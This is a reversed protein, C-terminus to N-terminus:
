YLIKKGKSIVLGKRDESSSLRKGDLSYEIGADNANNNERIFKVGDTTGLSLTVTIDEGGANLFSKLERQSVNDIKGLRTFNWNNTDYYLCVNRGQYLIIDGPETTIEENNQPLTHGIDGVKEFNGYDHATYTIDGTELLEKLATTSSNEVMTASLTKGNVTINMTYSNKSNSQDDGTVSEQALKKDNSGCAVMSMIAFVMMIAISIIRKMTSNKGKIIEKAFNRFNDM